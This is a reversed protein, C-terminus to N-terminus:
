HYGAGYILQELKAPECWVYRQRQTRARAGLTWLRRKWAVQLYSTIPPGAAPDFRQLVHLMRLRFEQGLDDRDLVPGLGYRHVWNYCLPATADCFDVFASERARSTPANRWSHYLSLVAPEATPRPQEPAFNATFDSV